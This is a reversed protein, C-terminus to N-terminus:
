GIQGTIYSVVNDLIRERVMSPNHWSFLSPELYCSLACKNCTEYSEWDYSNWLERIDIEWVKSKGSYENIIYCPQVIRGLPDINITLWPKCHWGEGGYWSNLIADFYEVSNVIPRGALKQYKLFEITEKLKARDPSLPDATSYDYAIQFNISVGLDSALNVLDPAQQMNERTITSSIAMPIRGRASRIGEIAKQFSGSIGRLRDHLEGVGDLSVFAFNLYDEIERVKGALLWGNTVMSTHFRKSSEELIEAIDKRLLPEGGEFGMFSVGAGALANMMKVEEEISLLEEDPRRWFPCMKCRLNCTYLLKHGAIMPLKSGSLGKMSRVLSRGVVGRFISM